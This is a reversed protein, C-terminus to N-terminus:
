LRCHSLHMCPEKVNREAAVKEILAGSILLTVGGMNKSDDSLREILLGCEHLAFAADEVRLNTARAIERLTCRVSVHVEASGDARRITDMLRTSAITPDIPSGDVSVEDPSQSLRVQPSSAGNATFQPTIANPDLEGEFGVPRKRKKTVVSTDSSESGFFPLTTFRETQM